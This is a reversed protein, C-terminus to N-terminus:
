FFSTKKIAELDEPLWITEISEEFKKIKEQVEKVQEMTPKPRPDDWWVIDTGNFEYRANPRLLTMAADVGTYRYFLKM